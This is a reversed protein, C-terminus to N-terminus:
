ASMRSFSMVPHRAAVQQPQRQRVQLFVADVDLAV